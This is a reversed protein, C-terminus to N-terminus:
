RRKYSSRHSRSLINQEIKAWKAWIQNGHCSGQSGQFKTYCIQFRRGRFGVMQTSIKYLFSTIGIQINPM